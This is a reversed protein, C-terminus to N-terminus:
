GSPRAAPDASDASDADLAAPTPDPRGPQNLEALTEVRITRLTGTNTRGLAAALDGATMDPNDALLERVKGRDIPVLKSIPEASEVRTRRRSTQVPKAAGTAPTQVPAAPPTQVPAVAPTQVPATPPAQNPHPRDTAPTTRPTPTTDPRQAVLEGPSTARPNNATTSDHQLNGKIMDAILHFSLFLSVAPIASVAMKTNDDLILHGGSSGAHLANCIVSLVVGAGLVVLPYTVPEGALRRVVFVVTGTTMLGDIALVLAWAITASIGSAKAVTTIADASLMFASVNVAVAGLVGIVFLAVRAWASSSAGDPAPTDPTQGGGAGSDTESAPRTDPHTDTTPTPPTDAV